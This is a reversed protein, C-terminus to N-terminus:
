SILQPLLLWIYSIQKGGLKVIRGKVNPNKRDWWIIVDQGPAPLVVKIMGVTCVGHLDEEQFQVLAYKSVKTATRLM